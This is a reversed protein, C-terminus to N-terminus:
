EDAKMADLDSYFVDQLGDSIASYVSWVFEIVSDSLCTTLYLEQPEVSTVFDEAEESLERELQVIMAAEVEGEFNTAISIKKVSASYIIHGSVDVEMDFQGKECAKVKSLLTSGKGVFTVFDEGGPEHAYGALKMTKYHEAAKSFVKYAGNELYEAFDKGNKFKKKM